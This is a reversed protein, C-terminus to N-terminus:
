KTLNFTVVQKHMKTFLENLNTTISNIRKNLALVSKYKYTQTNLVKGNLEITLTATKM